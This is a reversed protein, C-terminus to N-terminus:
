QGRRPKALVAVPDRPEVVLGPGFADRHGGQRTTQDALAQGILMARGAVDDGLLEEVLM